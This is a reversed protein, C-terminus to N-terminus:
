RKNKAEGCLDRIAADFRIGVQQPWEMPTMEGDQMDEIDSLTETRLADLRARVAANVAETQRLLLIRWWERCYEEVKANAFEYGAQEVSGEDPPWLFNARYARAEKQSGTKGELSEAAEALQYLHEANFRQQGYSPRENEALYRLADAIESMQVGKTQNSVM